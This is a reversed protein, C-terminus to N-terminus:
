TDNQNIDNHQIDSQQTDNHQFDNHQIYNIPSMITTNLPLPSFKM